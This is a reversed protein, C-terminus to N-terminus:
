VVRFLCVHRVVVGETSTSGVVGANSRGCVQVKSRVAVPIPRLAVRPPPPDLTHNAVVSM